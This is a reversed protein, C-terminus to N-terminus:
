FLYNIRISLNVMFVSIILENIISTIMQGLTDSYHIYYSDIKTLLIYQFRIAM